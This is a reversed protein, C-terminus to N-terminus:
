DEPDPEAIFPTNPGHEGCFMECNHLQASDTAGREHSHDYVWTAYEGCACRDIGEALRGRGEPSPYITSVAPADSRLQLLSEALQAIYADLEIPDAHPLDYLMFKVGAGYEGPLREMLGLVFSAKGNTRVQALLAAVKEPSTGALGEIMGAIM